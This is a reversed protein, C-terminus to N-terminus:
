QVGKVRIYYRTIVDIAIQNSTTTWVWKLAYHPVGTNAANIWGQRGVMHADTSAAGNFINTLAKPKFYISWPRGVGYKVKVGQKQQMEALDPVNNDDNDVIWYFDGYNTIVSSNETVRPIFKMSIGTIKYFDFLGTFDTYNPLDGLTFVIGGAGTGTTTGLLTSTIVRSFKYSTNQTLRRRM